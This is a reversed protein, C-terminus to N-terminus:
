FHFTLNLTAAGSGFTENWGNDLSFSSSGNTKYTDVQDAGTNTNIEEVSISGQGTTQFNIGWTFEAGISIKPLFFYDFGIFALASVGFTEGPGSQTPRPLGVIITNSSYWDYWYPNPDSGSNYANGYTFSTDSGAIFFMIEAGYYGQLRTSGRRKEIGFGVGIYHSSISRKDEVQAKPFASSTDSSPIEENQSTSNYGIRLLVRYATHDDVFYKGIFTQNSNLFSTTASAPTHILSSFYNLWPTADLSIAWDGAQPLYMEGKKSTIVPAPSSVTSSTNGQTTAPSTGGQAFMGSVTLTIGAMILVKKMFM